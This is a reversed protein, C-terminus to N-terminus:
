LAFVFKVAVQEVFRRANPDGIIFYTETGLKGSDRFSLYWNVNSNQVVVRGGISRTPSFEWNVNAIHQNSTGNLQQIAGAYVLDFRRFMRFSAYPGIFTSQSGGQVGQSIQAGLRQFRNSVGKTVSISATRDFQDEYKRAEGFFGYQWDSRTDLSMSLESGRRFPRGDFRWDLISTFDLNFSRVAGTRWQNDYIIYHRFGRYDVFNTLGNANRFTPSVSLFGFGHYLVRDNYELFLYRVGGGEGRRGASQLVDSRVSFKGWRSRQTFMAVTNNQTDGSRQSLFVGAQSTPSLDRRYNLVLNQDHDFDITHLLGITDVPSLKGYVKSGLDVRSIRNPFFYRGIHFNGVNLYDSGELFFPRREAVFREARSFFIGEIAGEVTAFDPNIAGVATLEPTLTVRADLGTRVSGKGERFVPLVYPLLSLKPRFAASPPVVGEWRGAQDLFGQPGINSWISEVQRRYHYRLLNIGMTTPTGGQPYNLIGWPIRFEASWGEKTIRSAAEWDGQWEIKAARGGALRASRTGRPNVAFKATDETKFSLFSDLSIEVADETNNVSSFGSTNRYRSDRVTERAVIQDPQSDLCEFAVYIYKEDYMVRATTQEQAPSGSQRDIFITAVTASQWAPEILDGDITPSASAKVAPLKRRAYDDDAFASNPTL